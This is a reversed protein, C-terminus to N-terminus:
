SNPSKPSKPSRSASNQIRQKLKNNEDTLDSVKQQLIVNQSEIKGNRLLIENRSTTIQEIKKFAEKYNEFLEDYKSSNLTNEINEFHKKIEEEFALTENKFQLAVRLDEIQSQYTKILQLQMSNTKITKETLDDVKEKLTQVTKIIQRESKEISISKDVAEEKENAAKRVDLLLDRMKSQSANEGEQVLITILEKIKEISVEPGNLDISDLFNKVKLSKSQRATLFISQQISKIKKELEASIDPEVTKEPIKKVSFASKKKYNVIEEFLRRFPLIKIEEIQNQYSFDNSEDQLISIAIDIPKSLANDLTSILSLNNIGDDSHSKILNQALKILYQDDDNLFIQSSESM